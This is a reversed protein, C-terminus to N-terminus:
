PSLDHRSLEVANTRGVVANESLRGIDDDAADRLGSVAQKFEERILTEFERTNAADSLHRLFFEAVYLIQFLTGTFLNILPKKTGDIPQGLLMMLETMYSQDDFDWRSVIANEIDNLFEHYTQRIVADDWHRDFEDQTFVAFQRRVNDVIQDKAGATLDPFNLDKIAKPTSGAIRSGNSCNYHNRGRGYRRISREIHERALFMGKSAYSTGGFNAPVPIHFNLDEPEVLAGETYHYSDKSHHLDPDRTGMDLGFLYIDRFGIEQAFALGANGVTINADLLCRSDDDCFLSTPTLPERFFYLVEDFYPIIKTDTTTSAVLLLSSVDYKDATESIVPLVDINETEIQFTPTIGNALLSRLATGSSFIIAKKQNQRLFDLSQDLSPGTGIVFAPVETSLNQGRKYVREKGSYLNHHTNQVMLREDFYTGLDSLILQLASAFKEGAARLVENNYHSFFITGDIGMPNTNRLWSKLERAIFDPDDDILIWLTGNREDMTEFLRAWDYIELTHVLFEPSPDIVHLARCNTEEVLEDIHGCLGIGMICLFYSERVSYQNSFGIAADEARKMLRRVYSQAHDDIQAVVLEPRHNVRTPKEWFDQLQGSVITDMEGGFLQGDPFSVDPRGNDDFTLSSGPTFNELIDYINPARKQFCALNRQKLEARKEPNSLDM